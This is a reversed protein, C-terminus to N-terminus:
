KYDVGSLLIEDYSFKLASNPDIIVEDEGGYKSSFAKFHLLVDEAKIAKKFIVGNGSGPAFGKSTGFNESWGAAVAPSGGPFEGVWTKKKNDAVKSLATKVQSGVKNNTQDSLGRHVTFQGTEHLSKVFQQSAVLYPVLALADATGSNWSDEFIHTQGMTWGWHNSQSAKVAAAEGKLEFLAAAVRINGTYYGGSQWSNFNGSFTDEINNQALFNAIQQRRGSASKSANFNIALAKNILTKYQAPITTSNAVTTFFDQGPELTSGIYKKPATFPLGLKEHAENGKKGSHELGEAHWGKGGEHKHQGPHSLGESAATHSENLLKGVIADRRAKLVEKMNEKDSIQSNDVIADIHADTVKALKQAGTVLNETTIDQFVQYAVKAKNPDRLTELENVTATFPKAGGAGGFKLAGGSDIKIIKDGAKQTNDNKPGIVDWNALWADAVFSDMIGAEKSMQGIPITTLNPQWDSKLATKGQFSILSTGLTGIGLLGYLNNALAESKVQEDSGSSSFKIYFEKGTQKHKFTGGENYGLKGGIKELVDDFNGPESGLPPLELPDVSPEMGEKHLAETVFYGYANESEPDEFDKSAVKVQKLEGNEDKAEITYNYGGAKLKHTKTITGKSVYGTISKVDVKTGKDLGNKNFTPAKETTQQSAIGSPLSVIKVVEDNNGIADLIGQDIDINPYTNGNEDVMSVKIGTGPKVNKFAASDNETVTLTQGAVTFVLGVPLLNLNSPIISGGLQFNKDMASSVDSPLTLVTPEYGIKGFGSPWQDGDFWQDGLDGMDLHYNIEVKNGDANLGQAVELLTIVLGNEAMFQTGPPFSALADVGDFSEGIKPLTNLYEETYPDDTTGTPISPSQPTPIDNLGPHLIDVTSETLMTTLWLNFTDVDMSSDWSQGSPVNDANVPTSNFTISDGAMDIGTIEIQTAGGSLLVDDEDESIPYTLKTGVQLDHPNLPNVVDGTPLGAQADVVSINPDDSTFNYTDGYMDKAYVFPNDEFEGFSEIELTGEMDPYTIINGVQLNQPNDVTGPSPVEFPAPEADVAEPPADESAPVVDDIADQDFTGPTTDGELGQQDNFLKWAQEIDAQHTNHWEQALSATGGHKQTVPHCYDAGTHRHAPVVKGSGKPYEVPNCNGGTAGTKEGHPKALHHQDQWNPPITGTPIQGFEDMGHHANLGMKNHKHHVSTVPHCYDYGLHRHQGPGCPKKAKQLFTKFNALKTTM